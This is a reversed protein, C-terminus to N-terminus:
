SVNHVDAVVLLVAVTQGGRKRESNMKRGAKVVEKKLNIHSFILVLQRTARNVRANAKIAIASPPTYYAWSISINKKLRLNNPHESCVHCLYVEHM